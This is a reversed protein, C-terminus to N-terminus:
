SLKEILMSANVSERAGGANSELTLASFSSHNGLSLEDNSFLHVILQGTSTLGTAEVGYTAGPAPSGNVFVAMQSREAATVTFTIKYDGDGGQVPITTDGPSHLVGSLSGHHNFRVMGEVAVSQAVTSYIYGYVGVRATGDIGNAGDAGDAGTDGTAGTDGKAGAAGTDGKAGNTGNTGNTGDAGTDGKAGDVGATGNDGKAGDAGATGTDGKVGQAGAIGQLGTEGQSGTAGTAGTDGQAAASGDLGKPGVPGTAGADGKAGGPGAPGAPGTDGKIGALGALGTDGKPLQGAKFDKALLSRNKVQKSTVTGKKINKGNVLTAATATGGLAIFIALFALGHRLTLTKLRTM